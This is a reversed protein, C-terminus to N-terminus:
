IHILSLNWPFRAAIDPAALRQYLGRPTSGGALSIAFPGTSAQARGCLWDAVDNALAKADAFTRTEALAATSM